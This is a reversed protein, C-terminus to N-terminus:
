VVSKRDPAIVITGSMEARGYNEAPSLGMLGAGAMIDGVPFSVRWDIHSCDTQRLDVCVDGANVRFIQALRSRLAEVHAPSGGDFYSVEICFGRIADEAANMRLSRVGELTFQMVFVLLIPLIAALVIFQKM